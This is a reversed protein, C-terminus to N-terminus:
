AGPDAEAPADPIPERDLEGADGAEAGAESGADERAVFPSPASSDGCGTLALAITTAALALAGVHRGVRKSVERVM